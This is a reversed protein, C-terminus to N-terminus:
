GLKNISLYYAPNTYESADFELNLNEYEEFKFTGTDVLSIKNSQIYNVYHFRCTDTQGSDTKDISVNVSTTETSNNDISILNRDSININKSNNLANLICNEPWILLRGTTFPIEPTEKKSTLTISTSSETLLRNTKVNIIQLIILLLTLFKVFNM